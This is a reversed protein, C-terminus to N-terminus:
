QPPRTPRPRHRSRPAPRASRRRSGRRRACRVRPRRRNRAAEPLHAKCQLVRIEGRGGPDLGGDVTRELAADRDHEIGSRHQKVNCGCASGRGGMRQGAHFVDHNLRLAACTDDDILPRPRDHHAGIDSDAPNGHRLAVQRKPDLLPGDGDLRVGEGLAFRHDDRAGGGFDLLLSPGRSASIGLPVERDSTTEPSLASPTDGRSMISMRALMLAAPASWASNM